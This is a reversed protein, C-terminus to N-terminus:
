VCAHGVAAGVAKGVRLGGVRAGTTGQTMLANAGAPVQETAHPPPTCISVRYMTVGAALPPVAHGSGAVNAMASGVGQLVCVHGVAAGVSGGGRSQMMLANATVPLQETAHPPPTCVM